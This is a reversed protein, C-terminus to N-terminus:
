PRRAGCDSTAGHKWPNSERQDGVGVRAVSKQALVLMEDGLTFSVIRRGVLRRLLWPVLPFRPTIEALRHALYAGSFSRVYPHLARLALGSEELLHCLVPATFYFLHAPILAHWRRRLLRAAVSDFRPTTLVLQGGPRMRAVLERIARRPDPVHELLDLATVVDFTATTVASLHLVDGSLVTGAGLRSNSAAQGWRSLEVGRVRWGAAAAEVLFVGPGCGVDLLDGRTADRCKLERLIRRAARQRGPLERIYWVDEEAREYAGRLLEVDPPDAVFGTGCARCVWVTPIGARQSEAIHYGCTTLARASTATGACYLRSSRGCLPCAPDTM